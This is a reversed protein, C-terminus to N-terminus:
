VRNRLGIGSLWLVVSASVPELADLDNLSYNMILLRPWEVPILIDCNFKKFKRSYLIYWGKGPMKWFDYKRV